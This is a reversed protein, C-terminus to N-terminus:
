IKVLINKQISMKTQAGSIFKVLIFSFKDQREIEDLVM